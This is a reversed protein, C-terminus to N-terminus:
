DLDVRLGVRKMRCSKSARAVLSLPVALSDPNRFILLAQGLSFRGVRLYLACVAM